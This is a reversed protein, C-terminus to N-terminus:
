RPPNNQPPSNEPPSTALRAVNEHLTATCASPGEQLGQVSGHITGTGRALVVAIGQRLLAYSRTDTACGTDENAGHHCRAPNGSAHAVCDVAVAPLGACRGPNGTEVAQAYQRCQAETMFGTCTSLLEPTQLWGREMTSRARVIKSFFDCQMQDREGLRACANATQIATCYIFERVVPRVVAASALAMGAVPNTTDTLSRELQALNARWQASRDVGADVVPSPLVFVSTDMAAVPVDVAPQVVPQSDDTSPVSPVQEPTPEAVPRRPTPKSCAVFSGVVVVIWLSKGLSYTRYVFALM